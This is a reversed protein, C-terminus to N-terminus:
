HQKYTYKMERIVYGTEFDVDSYFIKLNRDKELVYQNSLLFKDGIKSFSMLNEYYVSGSNNEVKNATSNFFSQENVYEYHVRIFALSEIEIWIFGMPQYLDGSSQGSISVSPSKKNPTIKIKYCAIGEIIENEELEFSHKTAFDPSLFGFHDLKQYSYLYNFFPCFIRLREMGFFADLYQQFNIAGVFLGNTNLSDSRSSGYEKLKQSVVIGSELYRELKYSYDNDVKHFTLHRPSLDPHVIGTAVKLVSESNRTAVTQSTFQYKLRESVSITSNVPIHNYEFAILAESVIDRATKLNIAKGKVEIDGLEMYVTNLYIELHKKNKVYLADEYDEYGESSIHLLCNESEVNSVGVIGKENTRFSIGCLSVLANKIPTNNLKDVVSIRLSDGAFGAQSICLFLFLLLRNM